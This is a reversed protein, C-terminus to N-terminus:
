ARRRLHGERARRIDAMIVLGKIRDYLRSPVMLGNLDAEHAAKLEEMRGPTPHGITWELEPNGKRDEGVIDASLRVADNECLLAVACPVDTTRISYLRTEANNM